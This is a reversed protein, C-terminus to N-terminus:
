GKMSTLPVWHDGSGTVTWEGAVIRGTRFAFEAAQERTTIDEAQEAAGSVGAYVDRVITATGDAPTWALQYKVLLGGEPHYGAPISREEPAM